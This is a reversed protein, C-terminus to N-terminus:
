TKCHALLFHLANVDSAFHLTMSHHAAANSQSLGGAGGDQTAPLRGGRGGLLLLPSTVGSAGPQQQQQSGSSTVLQRVMELGLGRSAGTILVVQLHGLFYANGMFGMGRVAGQILLGHIDLITLTATTGVQTRQLANPAPSAQHHSTHQATVATSAM